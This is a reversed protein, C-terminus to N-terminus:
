RQADSAAGYRSRNPSNRRRRPQHLRRLRLDAGRRPAAGFMSSLPEDRLKAKLDWLAIDVASIPRCSWAAPASMAAARHMAEFAGTIDFPDRGTVVPGLLETIVAAAAASSYTWGLGVADRAHAHVVVATTADWSLTADAEPGPTDVTYVDVDVREISRTSFTM